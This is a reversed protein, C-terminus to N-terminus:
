GLVGWAIGYRAETLCSLPAKLGHAEPLRNAAPIRVQDFLIESTIAARLSWKDLIPPASVGPRDMEVLFGGIHGDDDKAWVVALDASSANTSWRKHGNLVYSDGDRRATVEMGAPNSGHSRFLVR